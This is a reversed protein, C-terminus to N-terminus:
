GEFLNEMPSDSTLFGMADEWWSIDIIKPWSNHGAGKWIWLRKKCSLADYLMMGHKKPIIKDYEAIALAVRGTYDRLNQINDYKDRAFWRAPLFWYITQALSPLSDWPTILILGGITVPSDLALGTAVGCGMSEGCLFIPPGYKEFAASVISKADSLFVKENSHGSRGGYGPYEALVVRYGLPELVHIYYVRDKASGANGHFVVVTGANGENKSSTLGCYVQDESYYFQLGHAHIYSKTPAIRDPYYIMLRQM